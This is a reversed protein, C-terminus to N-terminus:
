LAAVVPALMGGVVDALEDATPSTMTAVHVNSIFRPSVENHGLGGGLVTTAILQVRELRIFELNTDYYGGYM